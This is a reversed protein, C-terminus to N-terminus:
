LHNLIKGSKVWWNSFYKKFNLEAEKLSKNSDFFGICTGGSGSMRQFTSKTHFKFFELVEKIESFSAIAIEELDNASNDLIDLLEKKSITKKTLVTPNSNFKIVKKFIEKTPVEVMPNVLLINLEEIKSIPKIKEGIGNVLSTKGYYCFPVDSGISLLIKQLETEKIKLEFIKLLAKITIAANCSGGGLGSSIPLNKRLKLNINFTRDFHTELNKIVELIINHELKLLSKSFPGVIDFSFKKSKKIEIFDGINCFSMLSNLNHFGDKRRSMVELFINIKAPSFFINKGM